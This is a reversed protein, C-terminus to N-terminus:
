EPAELESNPHGHRTKWFGPVSPPSHAHDIWCSKRTKSPRCTPERGLRAFTLQVLLGAFCEALSRCCSLDSSTKHHRKLRARVRSGQFTPCSRPNPKWISISFGETELENGFQDEVRPDLTQKPPGRDLGALMWSGISFRLVKAPRRQCGARM